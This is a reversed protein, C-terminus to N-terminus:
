KIRKYLEKALLEHTDSSPHADNKLTYHGSYEIVKSLNVYRIKKKKLYHLFSNMQKNTYMPYSPYIVVVFNDNGFQKVYEKKSELIMETVLDFHSTNLKVPLDLKFYNCIGSKSFIEYFKSQWYRGDTFTRDHKLKGDDLYYYPSTHLWGLYHEMAGISRYIHDWFFVYYATGEKEPVLKKLNENQLIALMHNTGYANWAFNYARSGSADQFHYPFTQNDNVGFGVTISCGFFLSYNGNNSDITPTVRYGHKDITYTASFFTDQAEGITHETYTTDPESVFGLYKARNDDDFVQASYDKMEQDPFGLMAFCTVEVIWVLIILVLINSSIYWKKKATILLLAIFISLYDLYSLVSVIGPITPDYSRM